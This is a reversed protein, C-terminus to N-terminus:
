TRLDGAVDAADRLMWLCDPYDKEDDEHADVAARLLRQDHRALYRLKTAGSVLVYVRSESEPLGRIVRAGSRLADDICVAEVWLEHVRVALQADRDLATM